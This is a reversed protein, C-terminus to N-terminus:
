AHTCGYLRPLIQLAEDVHRLWPMNKCVGELLWLYAPESSAAQFRYPTLLTGQLSNIKKICCEREPVNLDLRALALTSDANTEKERPIDRMTGRLCRQTVDWSVLIASYFGPAFSAQRGHVLGRTKQRKEWALAASKIAEAPESSWSPDLFRPGTSTSSFALVTKVAAEFKNSAEFTVERGKMSSPLKTTNGPMMTKSQKGWTRSKKTLNYGRKDTIATLKFPACLLANKTSPM